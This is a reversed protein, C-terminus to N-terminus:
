NLTHISHLVAPVGQHGAPPGRAYSVGEHQKASPEYGEFPQSVLSRLGSSVGTLLRLPNGILDISAVLKHLQRFCQQSYTLVLDAVLRELTAFLCQQLFLRSKLPFDTIDAIKDGLVEFHRLALLEDHESAFHKRQRRQSRATFLVLMPRICIARVYLPRFSAPPLPKAEPFARLLQYGPSEPAGSAAQRVLQVNRDQLSRLFFNRNRLLRLAFRMLVLTTDAEIHVALPALEVDVYELLTADHQWRGGLQFRLFLSEAKCDHVESADWVVFPMIVNQIIKESARSLTFAEDESGGVKGDASQHAMREEHTTQRVITQHHAGDVGNDIQLTDISFRFDLMGTGHVRRLATSIGSCGVYALEQPTSEVLSVGFGKISVSLCFGVDSLSSAGSSNQHRPRQGNSHPTAMRHHSVSDGKERSGRIVVSGKGSNPSASLVSSVLAKHKGPSLSKKSTQRRASKRHTVGLQATLRGSHNSGLGEPELDKDGCGELSATCAEKCNMDLASEHDNLPALTSHQFRLVKGTLVEAHSAHSNETLGGQLFPSPLGAWKNGAAATLHRSAKHRTQQASGRGSACWSPHDCPEASVCSSTSRKSFPKPAKVMYTLNETGLVTGGVHQKRHRRFFEHPLTRWTDNARGSLREKASPAITTATVRRRSGCVDTIFYITEKSKPLTLPRHVRVRAIDFSRIIQQNGEWFSFRLLKREKQPDSWAYDVQQGKQLLEWTEKGRIGSQTFAMLNNTMNVLVYDSSVAESFVVVFSAKEVLQISVRINLYAYGAKGAHDVGNRATILGTPSNVDLESDRLKRVRIQLTSNRAISLQSSWINRDSNEEMGEVAPGSDVPSPYKSTVAQGDVSMDHPIAPHATAICILAEGRPGLAQPHFTKQGGGKLWVPPTNAISEKVWIDYPLSSKLVFRNYVSIVKSRSFPPPALSVTVGFYNSKWPRRKLLKELFSPTPVCIAVSHGVLDARFPSCLKTGSTQRFGISSTEKAAAHNGEIRRPLLLNGTEGWPPVGLALLAKEKFPTGLLRWDCPAVYSIPSNVAVEFFLPEAESVLDRSKGYVTIALASCLMPHCGKSIHSNDTSAEIDEPFGNLLSMEGPSVDSSLTDDFELVQPILEYSLISHSGGMALQQITSPEVLPKAGRSLALLYFDHYAEASLGGSAPDERQQQSHEKEDLQRRLRSSKGLRPPHAGKVRSAQRSRARSSKRRNSTLNETPRFQPTASELCRSPIVMLPEVTTDGKWEAMNRLLLKDQDEHVKNNAVGNPSPDPVDHEKLSVSSVTSGKECHLDSDASRTGQTSVEQFSDVVFSAHSPPRETLHKTPFTSARVSSSEITVAMDSDATYNDSSSQPDEAGRTQLEYAIFARPLIWSLPIHGVGGHAMVELPCCSSVKLADHKGFCEGLSSPGPLTDSDLTFHSTSFLHKATSQTDHSINTGELSDSIAVFPIKDRVPVSRNMIQRVRGQEKEDTIHQLTQRETAGQLNLLALAPHPLIQFNCGYPSSSCQVGSIDSKHGISSAQRIAKLCSRCFIVEPRVTIPVPSNNRVSIMSSLYTCFTRSDPALVTRLLIRATFALFEPQSTKHSNQTPQQDVAPIKLPLERVGINSADLKLGSIEFETGILHVRIILRLPQGHDDLPVELSEEHRLTRWECTVGGPVPSNSSHSSGFLSSLREPSPPNGTSGRQEKGDNFPLASENIGRLITDARQAERWHEVLAKRREFAFDDTALHATEAIPPVERGCDQSPPCVRKPLYVSISEGCINVRPVLRRPPQAVIAAAYKINVACSWPELVSEIAMRARHLAEATLIFRLHFSLLNESIDVQFNQQESLTKCVVKPARLITPARGRPRGVTEITIPRFNSAKLRQNGLTEQDKVSSTDVKKRTHRLQEVLHQVAAADCDHPREITGLVDFDEVTLELTPSELRICEIRIRVTVKANISHCCSWLWSSTAPAKRKGEEDDQLAIDFCGGSDPDRTGKSKTGEVESFRESTLNNVQTCGKAGAAAPQGAVIVKELVQLLSAGAAVIAPALNVMFPDFEVLTEVTTGPKIGQGPPRGGASYAGTAEKDQEKSKNRGPREGWPTDRSARSSPLETSETLCKSQSFSAKWRWRCGNILTHVSMASEQLAKGRPRRLDNHVPRSDASLTRLGASCAPNPSSIASKVENNNAASEHNLLDLLTVFPAEPSGFTPPRLCRSLRPLRGDNSYAFMDKLRGKQLFSLLTQPDQSCRSPQLLAAHIQQASCLLRHTTQNLASEVEKFNPAESAGAGGQCPILEDFLHLTRSESYHSLTLSSSFVFIPPCTAALMEQTLKPLKDAVLPDRSTGFSTLLGPPCDQGSVSSCLRKVHRNTSRRLQAGNEPFDTHRNEPGQSSRKASNTLTSGRDTYLFWSPQLDPYPSSTNTPIIVECLEALLGIRIRWPPIDAGDLFLQADLSEDECLLTSNNQEKPVGTAACPLRRPYESEHGRRQLQEDAASASPRFAACAKTVENCVDRAFGTLGTLVQWDLTVRAPNFRADLSHLLSILCLSGNLILDPNRGTLHQWMANTAVTAHLSPPVLICYGKVVDEILVEEEEQLNAFSQSRELASNQSRSHTEPSDERIHHYDGSFSSRQSSGCKFTHGTSSHHRSLGEECCAEPARVDSKKKTSYPPPFTWRKSAFLQQNSLARRLETLSLTPADERSRASNCYTTAALLMTAVENVADASCDASTFDKNPSFQLFPLAGSFRGRSLPSVAGTDVQDEVHVKDGLIDDQVCHSTRPESASRCASDKKTGESVGSSNLKPEKAQLSANSIARHGLHLPGLLLCIDEFTAECNCRSAHSVSNIRMRANGLAFKVVFDSCHKPTGAVHSNPISVMGSTCESAMGHRSREFLEERALTLNQRGMGDERLLLLEFRSLGIRVDFEILNKPALRICYQGETEFKGSESAINKKVGDGAREHGEGLCGNKCEAAKVGSLTQQMPSAIKAAGLEEDTGSSSKWGGDKEDTLPAHAGLDSSSLGLCDSATTGTARLTRHIFFTIRRLASYRSPSRLSSLSNRSVNSLNRGVARRLMSISEISEAM